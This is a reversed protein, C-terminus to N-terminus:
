VKAHIAVKVSMAELETFLLRTAYPIQVRVVNDSNCGRCRAIGSATTGCTNCVPVEYPDSMTYLRERLFNSAGHAILADREMEGLRLGGGRSRGELPQNTLIQVDGEARAHMKDSVLHKLRQYYTPGIFIQAQMQEGTMGNYMTEYGTSEFGHLSLKTCITNSIDVSNESFPTADAFEGEITCVKGLVCELLQAITMRSPIANPNVIIDPVMGEATFPMDETKFTMGLTGKQASRSAFKDGIEPIKQQRIVIKILRYGEGTTTSTVSHVIGEQDAAASISTDRLTSKIERGETTHARSGSAGDKTNIVTTKAILIDGKVIKSGKKVIGSSDLKMYWKGHVSLKWTAAGSGHDSFKKPVGIIEYTSSDLRKEEYTVTKYSTSVFLGREIASQNIIVSDEQNFGTYCAIAVIANIGSPMSDLGAARSVVTSVLPKQVYDMVHLMTETRVNYNLVPMGIAQKMMSAQFCNRASQNHDSFPISAACTGLMSIPAIECYQTENTVDAYEMAIYSDEIETADLYVIDRSFVLDSWSKGETSVLVGNKIKLFPRMPRCEDCCLVVERSAKKYVISVDGDIIGRDRMKRLKYVLKEPNDTYGVVTGNVTIITQNFTLSLQLLDSTHKIISNIVLHHPVHQSVRTFIAMNKVTGVQMGEPTEFICMMGFQSSHIQRVKSNKGDKDVPLVIRRIHSIASAYSLRSLIQSVGTRIYSNKQVGWNGTAFCNRIGKGIDNLKQLICTIDQREVVVKRAAEIFKKFHMKLLECVLVGGLELRRMSVHDRDDECKNGSNVGQLRYIIHVLLGLKGKNVSKFTDDDESTELSTFSSTGMHPFLEPFNEFEIGTIKLIKQRIEQLFIKSNIKCASEEMEFYAKCDKSFLAEINDYPMGYVALILCAPVPKPVKPIIFFIEKDKTIGAQILISHSTEESMSRIEAIHEYKGSNDSFVQVHNYWIREQGVLVREKGNIIFYGGFDMPCEEHLIREDETLGYLNCKVSGLMIPIRFASIHAHLKHSVINGNGDIKDESIDMYVPADYNLNRLRAESPFIRRVTTGDVLVSPHGVCMNMFTVKYTSGDPQEYSIIPADDLIKHIGRLLFANFSEHQAAVAGGEAFFSEILKFSM